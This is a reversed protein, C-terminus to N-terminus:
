DCCAHLSSLVLAAAELQPLHGVRPLATFSAQPILRSLSRGREIEIWPDDEGWIVNVNCRIDKYLPELM